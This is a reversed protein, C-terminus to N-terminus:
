MFGGRGANALHTLFQQRIWDNFVIPKLDLPLGHTPAYSNKRTGAIILVDKISQFPVHTLLNFEEPMLIIKRAMEIAQHQRTSKRVAVVQAAAGHRAKRRDHTADELESPSAAQYQSDAIAKLNETFRTQQWTRQHSIGSKLKNTLL